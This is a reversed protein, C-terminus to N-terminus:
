YKEFKAKDAQMKKLKAVEDRLIAALEFQLEQAALKMQREKQKILSEINSKALQQEIADLGVSHSIENEIISTIKSSISKPTIDHERNYATQITRRRNTEDIAKQLSGTINDAYLIM